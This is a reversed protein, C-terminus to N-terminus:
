KRLLAEELDGATRERMATKQQLHLVAEWPRPSSPMRRVAVELGDGAGRDLVWIIRFQGQREGYQIALADGCRLNATVERLLAGSWSINSAKAIQSFTECAADM